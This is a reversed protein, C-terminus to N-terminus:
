IGGMKMVLHVVAYAGLVIIAGIVASTLINQAKKVQEENGRATTWLFGGYVALALFIAGVLALIPRIAWGIRQAINAAGGGGKGVMQKALSLLANAGYIILLGIVGGSLVKQAKSIQEQNGAATLWLFGGYVIVVFAISLVLELIKGKIKEIKRIITAESDGGSVLGPLKTAETKTKELGEMVKKSQGLTDQPAFSFVLLSFVVLLFAFVVSNKTFNSKRFFSM